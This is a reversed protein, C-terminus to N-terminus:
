AAEEEQIIIESQYWGHIYLFKFSTEEPQGVTGEYIFQIQKPLFKVALVRGPVYDRLKRALEEKSDSLIRM